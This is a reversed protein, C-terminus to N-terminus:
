QIYLNVSRIKNKEHLLKIWWVWRSSMKRHVLDGEIIASGPV